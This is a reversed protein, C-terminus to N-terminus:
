QNSRAALIMICVDQDSTERPPMGDRGPVQATFKGMLVEDMQPNPIVGLYMLGTRLLRHSLFGVVPLLAYKSPLFASAIGQVLSGMALWTWITFNNRLVNHSMMAAGGPRAIAPM